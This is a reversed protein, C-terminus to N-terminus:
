LISLKKKFFFKKKYIEVHCAATQIQYTFTRHRAARANYTRLGTAPRAPRRATRAGIPPQTATSILSVFLQTEAYRETCSTRRLAARATM